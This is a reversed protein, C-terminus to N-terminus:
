DVSTVTSQCTEVGKEYMLWGTLAFAATLVAVMLLGISWDRWIKWTAKNEETM